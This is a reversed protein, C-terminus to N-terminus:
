GLAAISSRMSQNRLQEIQIGITLSVFCVVQWKRKSYSITLGGQIDTLDREVVAVAPHTNNNHLSNAAALIPAEDSGHQIWFWSASYTGQLDKSVVNCDGKNLLRYIIIHHYECRNYIDVVKIGVPLLYFDCFFLYVLLMKVMYVIDCIFTAYRIKCLVSLSTASHQAQYYKILIWKYTAFLQKKVQMNIIYTGLLHWSILFSTPASRLVSCKIEGLVSNKQQLM